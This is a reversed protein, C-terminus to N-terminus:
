LWGTPNDIPEDDAARAFGRFTRFLQWLTLLGLIIGGLVVFLFLFYGAILLAIGVIGIPLSIWFTWIASTMHSAYPTGALSGRKVYAIILGIIPTIALTLYSALYLAWVAIAWMRGSTDKTASSQQSMIAGPTMFDRRGTLGFAIPGSSGLGHM